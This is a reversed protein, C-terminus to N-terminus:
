NGQQLAQTYKKKYEVPTMGAIRKFLERFTPLDSYGLEHMVDSISKRGIELQKKAAEIKVRQIYETVTIRTAKKFRREFTRRTMHVKEALTDVSPKKNFEQEILQQILKIPGDDHDKFGNFIIFPAQNNKTIDIVFYKAIRIAIERGAYKEVLYLLLNWYANNGGSSYLGGEHVIMKQDSLKANPYLFSFENAYAWHTTCEKGNLLGTFALLFAGTSLSAVEAGNRYQNAIWPAFGKNLYTASLMDGDLAPVIILSTSTLDRIAVHPRIIYTSKQLNIESSLGVLQVTFGPKEGAEILFRNVTNFVYQADSISAPLANHLALIAIDVM